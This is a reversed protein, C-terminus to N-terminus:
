EKQFAQHGWLWPDRWIEKMGLRRMREFMPGFDKVIHTLHTDHPDAHFRGFLIGGPALANCVEEATKVPDVLHEFVDMATIFDFRNAALSETKLDICSVPLDCQEHRWKAFSLLPSSVDALTVDYGNRGFLIGGSGVGSGFDLYHKRPARPLDPDEPTGESGADAHTRRAFELAAVYALPSDDEELTHWTLLNYLELQCGDYFRAVSNPDHADVSNWAGSMANNANQRWSELQSQDSLGLYRMLEDLSSGRLDSFGDLTLASRWQSAYGDLWEAKQQEFREWTITKRDVEDWLEKLQDAVMNTM